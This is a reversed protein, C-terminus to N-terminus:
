KGAHFSEYQKNMTTTVTITLISPTPSPWGVWIIWAGGGGVVATEQRGLGM